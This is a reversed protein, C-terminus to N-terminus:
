PPTLEGDLRRLRRLDEPTNVNIFSLGRPDAARVEDEPVWCVRVFPFFSVIRGQDLSREIAPLCRRSYVACLPEVKGGWIPVVAECDRERASLLRVLAPQLLPADAAAVFCADATSAQLGARIGLLPGGGQEADAVIRVGLHGYREPENTSLIVSDVLPTVTEVIREIFSRGGLLLFAKTRGGMRRAGGGSLILADM